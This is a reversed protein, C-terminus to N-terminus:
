RGSGERREESPAVGFVRKYAHSFHSTSGFGCEVAVALIPNLTQRLLTRARALRLRLYFVKPATGLQERFLREIQRPSIAARASIQKIDLPNEIAAEMLRIIEVLKPSDVSYRTHVELRQHDEQRRIQPHIFQEAVALAIERGALESIFRLMLDLAAIGGSCTFVDRDVVYLDGSVRLGPYRAEFQQAYEWHV